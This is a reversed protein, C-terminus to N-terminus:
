NGRRAVPRPRKRRLMMIAEEGGARSRPARSRALMRKYDRPIVKVFKPVADNGPTSCRARRSSSTHELHREVLRRVATIEAADELRELSVMQANVQPLIAPKTWCTPSAAPCEPRSIADRRGLVVVRGGDHVRLRSRSPRSSRTSAATASASASARSAAIYAQGSTAGYLAVNGVIVNENAQFTAERPSVAIKGGSLGQRRLRERRGRAVAVLRRFSRASARAPSGRFHLRITDEPLGQAGHKRTIESGTITGVSAISTASRCNPSWKTARELAPKCLDLLVTVDLSRDIGHDQADQCYRGWDPDVEPLLAPQHLRPRRRGTSSAQRPELKDVRGVMEEVTRFGLQAMIERLEEAILAHLERRARSAKFKERLRPDQTAIGAPLHESHCVRMMICRRWVAGDRLWSRPALLAAVAVDRGTKL